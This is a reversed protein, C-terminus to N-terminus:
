TTETLRCDFRLGASVPHIVNAHNRIRRIKRRKYSVGPNYCLYLVGNRSNNGNYDYSFFDIGTMEPPNGSNTGAIQPRVQSKILYAMPFLCQLRIRKSVRKSYRKTDNVSCLSRNTLGCDIIGVWRDLSSKNELSHLVVSNPAV